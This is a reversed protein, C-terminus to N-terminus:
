PAEGQGIIEAVWKTYKQRISNTLRSLVFDGECEADTLERCASLREAEWYTFEKSARIARARARRVRHALAILQLDLM